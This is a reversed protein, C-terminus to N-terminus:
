TKYKPYLLGDTRQCPDWQDTVHRMSLSFCQREDCRNIEPCLIESRWAPGRIRSGGPSLQLTNPSLWLQHRSECVDVGEPLDHVDERTDGYMVDIVSFLAFTIDVDVRHGPRLHGSCFAWYAVALLRRNGRDWGQLQSGLHSRWVNERLSGFVDFYWVNHEQITIVCTCGFWHQRPWTQFHM